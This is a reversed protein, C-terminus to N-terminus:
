EEQPQENIAEIAQNMEADLLENYAADDLTTETSYEGSFRANRVELEALVGSEIYIKDSEAQMKHLEAKEKETLTSLPNFDLEPPTDGIEYALYRTLKELPERAKDEQWAEVAKHWDREESNGSAGGISSNAKEGFLKTIPMGACMTVWEKPNRILDDLGTINATQRSYDDNADIVLKNVYSEGDMMADLRAKFSADTDNDIMENLGDLKLIGIVFDQVITPVAGQSLSYAMIAEACTRLVSEGKGSNSQRYRKSVHRGPLFLVRDKHLRFSGYEDYFNFHEPEDSYGMSYDPSVEDCEFLKIKELQVRSTDVPEDLQRGDNIYLAVYCAGHLRENKLARRMIAKANLERLRSQYKDNNDSDLRFWKRLGDDPFLDVIKQALAQDAYLDDLEHKFMRRGSRHYVHYKKDRATGIGTTSSYYGDLRKQLGNVRQKKTM